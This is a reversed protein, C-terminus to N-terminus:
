AELSGDDDYPSVAKWGGHRGAVEKSQKASWARLGVFLGLTAIPQARGVGYKLLNEKSGAFVAGMFNVTQVVVTVGILNTELNETNDIKLCEPFNIKDIFLQYLGVATIYLVTDVLLIQV